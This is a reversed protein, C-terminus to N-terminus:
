KSIVFLRDRSLKTWDSDPFNEVNQQYSKIADATKGMAELLAGQSFYVQPALLANKNYQSIFTTYEQLAMAQENANEYCVAANVLAVPALYSTKDLTFVKEFSVAATDWQKQDTQYEGQIFYAKLLAYSNPAKAELAKLESLLNKELQAKKTTDAESKWQSYDSDLKEIKAGFDKKVGQAYISWGALAALVVVVVVIATLIVSRNKQLFNSIAVRAASTSSVKKEVM